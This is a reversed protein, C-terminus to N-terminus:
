KMPLAHKVRRRTELTVTKIGALKCWDMVEVMRGFDAREDGRIAIEHQGKGALYHLELALEEKIMPRDKFYVRGGADVTISPTASPSTVPPATASAPLRVDFQATERRIQTALIFFFLLYFVMDIMPIMNFGPQMRMRRRQLVKGSM